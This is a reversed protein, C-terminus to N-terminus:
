SGQLVFAKNAFSIQDGIGIKVSSGAPLEKGNVFTGNLSRMDEIKIDGEPTKLLKAHMRSIQPYPLTYDPKHSPDGKGITFPWKSIFITEGTEKSELAVGKDEGSYLLCTEDGKDMFTFIPKKRRKQPKAAPKPATVREESVSVAEAVPDKLVPAAEFFLEQMSPDGEPSVERSEVKKDRAGFVKRIYEFNFDPERSKRYIDYLAVVAAKDKYDIKDMFYEFLSSFQNRLPKGYGPLCVAYANGSEDLFLCEDNIVFDEEGILYERSAEVAELVDYLLNKLETFGPRRDEYVLCLPKKKDADYVYQCIGDNMDTRFKMVGPINNYRLMKEYYEAGESSETYTLILEKKQMDSRYEKILAMYLYARGLCPRRAGKM